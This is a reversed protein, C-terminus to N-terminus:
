FGFLGKPFPVGLLVEFLLYSLATTLLAYPITSLIKKRTVCFLAMMLLFSTLLYGLIPLLFDYALIAVFAGVVIKWDFGKWLESPKVNDTKRLLASVILVLSLGGLLISTIFLFSGAAPRSFSGIRYSVAQSGIFVAFALWFCGSIVDRDILCRM